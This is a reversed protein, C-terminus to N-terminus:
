ENEKLWNQFKAATAIIKGALADMELPKDSKAINAVAIDKAYSLAFSASSGRQAKFGGGFGNQQFAEKIKDGDITYNLTDGEKIAGKAKKGVSGKDGNDLAIVHYFISGGKPNPWERIQIVETVKATKM